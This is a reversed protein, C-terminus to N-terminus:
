FEDDELWSGKGPHPTPVRGKTPKYTPTVDNDSEMDWAIESGPSRVFLDIAALAAGLTAVDHVDEIRVSRPPRQTPMDISFSPRRADWANMAGNPRVVEPGSTKNSMCSKLATPGAMPVEPLTTSPVTLSASNFYAGIGSSMRIAPSHMPPHLSNGMMSGSRSLSASAQSAHSATRSLSITPTVTGFTAGHNSIASRLVPRALPTRVSLM